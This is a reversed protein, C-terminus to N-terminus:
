HALQAHRHLTRSWTQKENHIIGYYSNKDPGDGWTFVYAAHADTLREAASWLRPPPPFSFLFALRNRSALHSCQRHM